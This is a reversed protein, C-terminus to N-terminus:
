WILFIVFMSALLSIMGATFYVISLLFLKLTTKLWSQRYVRKLATLTYAIIIWFVAVLPEAMTYETILIYICGMLFIFSHLHFAFILHDIYLTNNRIYFLKLLIAFVPMLMFIIWPLKSFLYEKFENFDSAAFKILESYWFRNWFTKQKGLSDLVVDTDTIGNKVMTKIRPYDAADIELDSENDKGKTSDASSKPQRNTATMVSDIIETGTNQKENLKVGDGSFPLIFYVVVITIFMRIPDLYRNRKGQIYQITLFGPKFLLAPMSNAFRSDVSLFGTILDGM